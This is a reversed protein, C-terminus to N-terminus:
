TLHTDQRLMEQYEEEEAFWHITAAKLLTDRYVKGYDISDPWSNFIFRNHRIVKTNDKDFNQCINNITKITTSNPVESIIHQEYKWQDEIVMPGGAYFLSSDAVSLFFDGGTVDALLSTTAYDNLLPFMNRKLGRQIVDAMNMIFRMGYEHSSDLVYITIEIEYKEKTSELTLWESSRSVPRVTIAPYQPIVSPDGLYVGRVFENNITKRLVANNQVTWINNIIPTVLTVHTNDVIEDIVHGYESLTPHQLMVENGAEFRVSSDVTLTTSGVAADATLPTTTNVWREVMRRVSDVVAEIAM